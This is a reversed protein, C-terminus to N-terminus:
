QQLYEYVCHMVLVVLLLKPVPLLTASYRNKNNLIGPYGPYRYRPVRTRHILIYTKPVSDTNTHTPSRLKEVRLAKGRQGAPLLERGFEGM